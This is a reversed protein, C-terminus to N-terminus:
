KPKPLKAEKPETPGNAETWATYGGAMHAVPALGMRHVSQAALASRMGGACFFVFRKGSQFVDRAYPSAPDIWFELMGRPAHVAGPIAGDRWLERIDRIDILVVGDDEYHAYTQEVSWTEIEAEAELNDYLDMYSTLQNIQLTNYNIKSDSLIYDIVHIELSDANIEYEDNIFKVNRKFANWSQNLIQM